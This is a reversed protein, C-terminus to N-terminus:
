ELHFKFVDARCEILNNRFNIKKKKMLKDLISQVTGHDKNFFLFLILM